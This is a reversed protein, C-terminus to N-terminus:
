RGIWCQVDVYGPEVGLVKKSIRTKRVVGIRCVWQASSPWKTRYVVSNKAQHRRQHMVGGATRFGMETSHLWTLWFHVLTMTIRIFFAAKCKVSHSFLHCGENIHILRFVSRLAQLREGAVPSSSSHDVIEVRWYDNADGEYDKFGYGSLYWVGIDTNLFM